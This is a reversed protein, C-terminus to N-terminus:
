RHAEWPYRRERTYRGLAERFDPSAALTEFEDVARQRTTAHIPGFEAVYRKLAAVTAPRLKTVRALLRRLPIELSEGIEDVLGIEAARAAAVPVTSLAMSYARQFGIRRMLFPLVCCPLLGWLAEPLSFQSRPTALVFDSAAVLGVGGGAARGDVVAVVTLTSTTFRVLLDFFPEAAGAFSHDGRGPGPENLDMGTCFIGAAGCLMVVRCEADAEAADIACHLGELLDDTIANHSQPRDLTLKTVAEAIEVRVASSSTMIERADM